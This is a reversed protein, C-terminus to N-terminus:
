RPPVAQSDPASRAPAHSHWSAPDGSRIGAIGPWAAADRAVHHAPDPRWATYGKDKGSIQPTMLRGVAESGHGPRGSLRAAVRSAHLDTWMNLLMGSMEKLVMHDECALFRTTFISVMNPYERTPSRSTINKVRLIDRLVRRSSAKNVTIMSFPGLRTASNKCPRHSAMLEPNM